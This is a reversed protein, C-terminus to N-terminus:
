YVTWFISCLLLVIYIPLATFLLRFELMTLNLTPDQEPDPDADFHFTPDPNPDADFSHRDVVRGKIIVYHKWSTSTHHSSPTSLSGRRSSALREGVRAAQRESVSSGTTIRGLLM